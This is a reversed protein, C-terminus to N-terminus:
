SSKDWWCFNSLSRIKGRSISYILVPCEFNDFFAFNAQHDGAEIRNVEARLEAAIARRKPGQSCCIGAKRLWVSAQCQTASLQYQLAESM